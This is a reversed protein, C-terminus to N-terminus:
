FKKDKKIKGPLAVFIDIKDKKQLIEEGAGTKM